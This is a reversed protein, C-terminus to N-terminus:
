AAALLEDIRATIRQDDAPSLSLWGDERVMLYRGRHTDFWTVLTAARHTTGRRRDAGNVGFQGGAVRNNALDLLTDADAAPVGARLLADRELDEAFPDYDAEDPAVARRLADYSVSMAQGRGPRGSPMVQVVSAALATPRIVALALHDNDVAALVAGGRDAAALGRLPGGAYGVADVSVNPDALVRLAAELDADFRDGHLLGRERLSRRADEVVRAREPGTVGHSPVDLPYPMRGLDLASWLVEYERTTLVFDPSISM